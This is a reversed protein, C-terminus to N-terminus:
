LAEIISRKFAEVTRIGIQPDDVLAADIVQALKDPIKPERQRIPVSPLNLVQAAMDKGAVFPKPYAGTLMNYYSAAAAWVDVDPQAYRFDLVQQRPMFQMSGAVEGTRTHSSLGATEFTKALGFDAVLALPQSSDDSLFINAPKLDRHVVGNASVEEGDKLKARVQAHHVHQLGDLVQLMIHTALDLSLKGQNKRMLKDVSGGRCYELLIFFVDGCSGFLHQRVVNKHVLQGSLYAERRFINKSREDAAAEPLMFKLVMEQGSVEDEVLLAEGMGGKGLRKINRYGAIERIGEEVSERAGKRLSEQAQKLIFALMKGPDQRCEPSIDPELKPAAEQPIDVEIAFECDSGLKLQDGAQMPFPHHQMKKGEEASMSAERQGIKKGNLYTGNLSGFDRVLVSPPAIELICHYRSVTAEPLQIPCDKHRGLVLSERRDFVFEKGSLEGKTIRVSVKAPM